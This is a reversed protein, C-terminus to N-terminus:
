KQDAMSSQLQYLAAEYHVRVDGTSAAVARKLLKEVRKMEGYLMTKSEDITRINVRYQWNYGPRGFSEMGLQSAVYGIGHEEELNRLLEINGAILGTEDLGFSVIHDVSPM